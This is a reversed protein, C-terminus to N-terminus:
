LTVGEFHVLDQFDQDTVPERDSDWDGGWRLKIGMMEAVGIVIGAFFLCHRQDWSIKGHYYPAADVANSPISNHKGEPWPVKSKQPRVNYYENQKKEGRHGEIITNDIIEVVRFFVKQIDPDCTYLRDLSDRGYKPM